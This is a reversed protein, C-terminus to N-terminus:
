PLLRTSRALFRVRYYGEQLLVRRNGEGCHSHVHNRMKHM